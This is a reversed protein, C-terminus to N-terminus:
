LTNVIINPTARLANKGISYKQGMHCKEPIKICFYKNIGSDIILGLSVIDMLTEESLEQCNLGANCLTCAGVGLSVGFLTSDSSM